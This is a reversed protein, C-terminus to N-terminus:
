RTTQDGGNKSLKFIRWGQASSGEGEKGFICLFLWAATDASVAVLSSQAAGKRKEIFTESQIPGKVKQTDVAQRSYDRRILGRAPLRTYSVGCRDKQIFGSYFLVHGNFHGSRCPATVFYIYVAKNKRLPEQLSDPCLGEAMTAGGKMFFVVRKETRQWLGPISDERM